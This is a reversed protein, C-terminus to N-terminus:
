SYKLLAETYCVTEPQFYFGCFLISKAFNENAKRVTPKRKGMGEGLSVLHDAVLGQVVATADM